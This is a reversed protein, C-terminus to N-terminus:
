FVCLLISLYNSSGLSEKGLFLPHIFLVVGMTIPLVLIALLFFLIDERSVPNAALYDRYFKEEMKRSPFRFPVNEESYEVAYLGNNEGRREDSAYDQTVEVALRESQHHSEPLRYTVKLPM